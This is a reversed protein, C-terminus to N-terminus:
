ASVVGNAYGSIFPRPASGDPPYAHRVIRGIDGGYVHISVSAADNLANTVQHHDGIQPSLVAVTGAPMLRPQGIPRPPQGPDIAFRQDTEAGRLVGILGWVTHDHIPTAQAPAWAMSVVGYRADPDTYLNYLQYHAPDTRAFGEPLWDDRAVLCALLAAAHELLRDEPPAGAILDDMASIFNKFAPADLM